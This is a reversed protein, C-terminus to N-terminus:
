FVRISHRVGLNIFDWQPDVLLMTKLLKRLQVQSSEKPRAWEADGELVLAFPWGESLIRAWVRRHSMGCAVTFADQRVRWNLGYPGPNDGPTIHSSGQRSAPTPNWDTHIAGSEKLLQLNEQVEATRVYPVAVADFMRATVSLEAAQFSATLQLAPMRSPLAAPTANTTGAPCRRFQFGALAAALLSMRAARRLSTPAATM